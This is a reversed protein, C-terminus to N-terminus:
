FVTSLVSISLQAGLGTPWQVLLLRSYFGLSSRDRVVEIAGKTLLSDVAEQLASQTVPDPDTYHSIVTPVRSLKPRSLFLIRYVSSGGEAYISIGGIHALEPFFPAFMGM